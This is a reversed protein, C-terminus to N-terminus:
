RVAAQLSAAAGTKTDVPVGPVGQEQNPGKHNQSNVVATIAKSQKRSPQKAEQTGEGERTVGAETWRAKEEETALAWMDALMDSQREPDGALEPRLLLLAPLSRGCFLAFASAAAAASPISKTRKAKKTKAATVSEKRKRTTRGATDADADADTATDTNAAATVSTAIIESSVADVAERRKRL